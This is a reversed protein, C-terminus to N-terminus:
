LRRRVIHCIILALIAVGKLPERVDEPLHALLATTHESLGILYLLGLIATQVHARMKTRRACLAKLRAVRREALSASNAHTNASHRKM